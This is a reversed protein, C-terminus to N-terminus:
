VMSPAADDDPPNDPKYFLVRRSDEKPWVKVGSKKPKKQPPPEEPDDHGPPPLDQKVLAAAFADAPDPGKPFRSIIGSRRNISYDYQRLDALPSCQLRRLRTM